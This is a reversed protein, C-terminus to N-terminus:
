HVVLRETLQEESTQVSVLYVGPRLDALDLEISRGQPASLSKVIRGAVDYLRIAQIPEDARLKVWNTAPNPILSIESESNPRYEYRFADNMVVMIETAGDEGVLAQKSGEINIQDIYVQDANSSAHCQLRIYNNGSFDFLAQNLVVTARYFNGNQFDPGSEFSTVPSFASGNGLLVEIKEEVEMSSAYFYFSLKVARFDSLDLAPSTMSSGEGADDRLRISFDGEFSKEGFYRYCDSGGDLWGDWGEEFYGTAIPTLEVTSQLTAVIAIAPESENGAQDIATVRFKYVTGSQLGTIRLQTDQVVTLLLSDQYIRYSAVSWEDTSAGWSLDTSTETTNDARLDLPVSPALSDAITGTVCFQADYLDMFESGSIQVSDNYVLEFSGPGYNCCIGDGYSDYIRFTYCGTPLCLLESITSRQPVNAYIGGEAVTSDGDSLIEWKTEQPYDDLNINVMVETGNCSSTTDPCQPGSCIPATGGAALLAAYTNIRGHGFREDFGIAGMDTATETLIERVRTGSLDPAYGLLLAATGSVVPCAASTGGFEYNYDTENYGAAGVRDTTLVTVGNGSSPAVLDLTPGYNSYIARVGQLTIAGVALVEDMGAPFDVCGKFGNGSAFVLVAGKGDRGNTAADTIAAAINDFFLHCSNYGWSNSIVDAGARVAWSIGDAMDQTTEGGVFLNVSLLESLPAIGQIGRGDHAAAITGACSVGHRGDAQPSGDGNDAPTFGGVIRSQGAPTTFEPHAELGDDLIAVKVREPGLSISWAEPANCDIDAVGAIGDVPQGTNDLQFQTGFMPDTYREAKAYFDPQAFDVLGSDYLREAVTFVESLERLQLRHVGFREKVETYDIGAILEALDGQNRLRFVVTPTPYIMFGDPLRYGPSVQVTTPDLGLLPAVEDSALRRGAAVVAFSKNSFIELRKVGAVGGLRQVEDGYVIFSTPDPRLSLREGGAQYSVEQGILVFPLLVAPLLRQFYKFM